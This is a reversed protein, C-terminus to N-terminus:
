AAHALRTQTLISAADILVRNYSRTKAPSNQFRRSVVDSLEDLVLEDIAEIAEGALSCLKALSFLITRAEAAKVADNGVVSLWLRRHQQTFHGVLQENQGLCARYAVGLCDAILPASWDVIDARESAINESRLLRGWTGSEPVLIAVASLAKTLRLRNVM